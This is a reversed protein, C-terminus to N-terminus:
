APLGLAPLGLAPLGLAPLRLTPLQPATLLGRLLRPLSRTRLM